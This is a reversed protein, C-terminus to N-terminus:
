LNLTKYSCANELKATLPSDKADVERASWQELDDSFFVAKELQGTPAEM